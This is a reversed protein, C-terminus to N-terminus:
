AEPLSFMCIIFITYPTDRLLKSNVLAREKKARTHPRLIALSVSLGGLMVFALIRVAWGFGVEEFLERMMLPYVVGAAGQTLKRGIGILLTHYKGISSGTSVVGAALMRRETFYFPIIAASTFALM